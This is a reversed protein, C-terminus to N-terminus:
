KEEIVERKNEKLDNNSRIGSLCERRAWVRAAVVAKSVAGIATGDEVPVTGTDTLVTGTDTLVM